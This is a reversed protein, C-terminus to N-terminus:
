FILILAFFFFIWPLYWRPLIDSKFGFVPDTQYKRKSLSWYLEASAAASGTCAAPGGQQAPAGAAEPRCGGGRFAFVDSWIRKLESSCAQAEQEGGGLVPLSVLGVWDCVTVTPFLCCGWFHRPATEIRFHPSSTLRAFLVSEVAPPPPRGAWPIAARITSPPGQCLWVPRSGEQRGWAPAPRPPPQCKTREWGQNGPPAEKQGLGNSGHNCKM